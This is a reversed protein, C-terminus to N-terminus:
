EGEGQLAVRVICAACQEDDTLARPWRQECRLCENRDHATCHKLGRNPVIRNLAERLRAIEASLTTIHDLARIFDDRVRCPSVDSAGGEYRLLREQAAEPTWDDITM